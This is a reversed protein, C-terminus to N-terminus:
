GEEYEEGSYFIRGDIPSIHWPRSTDIEYGEVLEGCFAWWRQYINAIEVFPMGSDERYELADQLAARTRFEKLDEDTLKEIL